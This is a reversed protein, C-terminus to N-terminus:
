QRQCINVNLFQRARFIMQGHQHVESQGAANDRSVRGIALPNREAKFRQAANKGYGCRGRGGLVANDASILDAFRGNNRGNIIQLNGYGSKDAPTKKMFRKRQMKGCTHNDDYSCTNIDQFATGPILREARM